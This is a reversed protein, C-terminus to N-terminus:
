FFPETQGASPRRSPMPTQERISSSLLKSAEAVAKSCNAFKQWCSASTEEEVITKAAGLLQVTSSVVAMAGGLIETQSEFGRQTLIAPTGGFQPFKAFETITDVATLLPKGFLLCRKCNEESHSLALAKLSELFTATVGQLCQICNAFQARDSGSVRKNESAQKCGQTLLAINDALIRSINLIQDRSHFTEYQPKFKEYCMHIAQRACEFQYRDVTGPTAPKCRIDTLSTLYAAHTAAEILIIVQKAITHVVKHVGGFSQKNLHHTLEKISIALGKTNAVIADRSKGYSENGKPVPQLASPQQKDNYDALSPPPTSQLLLIDAVLQMKECAETCGLIVLESSVDEDIGSTSFSLSISAAMESALVRGREEKYKHTHSSAHSM